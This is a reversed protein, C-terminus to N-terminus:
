AGAKNNLDVIADDLYEPVHLEGSEGAKRYARLVASVLEDRDPRKSIEGGWEIHVTRAAEFARRAVSEISECPEETRALGFAIGYIIGWDRLDLEFETLQIGPRKGAVGILGDGTDDNRLIARVKEQLTMDITTPM